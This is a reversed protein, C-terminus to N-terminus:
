KRKITKKHKSKRHKSKRHKHKHTKRKHYSRKKMKKGGKKRMNQIIRMLTTNALRYDIKQSVPELSAYRTFLKRIPSYHIIPFLGTNDNSEFSGLMSVLFDEGYMEIYETIHLAINALIYFIFTNYKDYIATKLHRGEEGRDAGVESHWASSFDDNNCKYINFSNRLFTDVDKKFFAVDIEFHYNHSFNSLHEENTQYCTKVKTDYTCQRRNSAKKLSAKTDEVFREDAKSCDIETIDSPTHKESSSTTKIKKSISASASSSSTAKRKRSISASM